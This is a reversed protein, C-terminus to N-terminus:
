TWAWPLYFLIKSFRCQVFCQRRLPQHPDCAGWTLKEVHTSSSPLTGPSVPPQSSPKGEQGADNEPDRELEFWSVIPTIQTPLCGRSSLGPTKLPSSPWLLSSSTISGLLLGCPKPSSLPCYSPLPLSPFLFSLPHYSILSQSPEEERLM